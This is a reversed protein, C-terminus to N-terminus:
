QSIVSVGLPVPVNINEGPDGFLCFLKSRTGPKAIYRQTPQHKRVQKLTQSKKSGLIVVDGGKGGLGGKAPLGDGGKGGKVFVRLSDIFQYM